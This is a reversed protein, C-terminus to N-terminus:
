YRLPTSPWVLVHATAYGFSPASGTVLQLIELKCRQLDPVSERPVKSGPVLLLKDGKARVSIRLSVLAEVVQAADM